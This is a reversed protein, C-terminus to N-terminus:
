EHHSIKAVICYNFSKLFPLKQGKKTSFSEIIVFGAKKLLKNLEAPTFNHYYRSTLQKGQGNKWPIQLDNLAYNGLTFISRLWAKINQWLYKKQWLNWVTLILLGDQRLVKKIEALSQLRLAQSPLHHFAAISLVLDAQNKELPINILDGPLFVEKPYKQHAKALLSTNNDIGIYHFNHSLYHSYLFDLLRGNGCGLDVIEANTKLYPKFYTFEEWSYHRTDSFENAIQHYSEQVERLLKNVIKQQM